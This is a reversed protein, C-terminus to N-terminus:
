YDKEKGCRDCKKKFLGRFTGGCYQCLGDSKWRKRDRCAQIDVLAEMLKNKLGQGKPLKRILSSYDIPLGPCNSLLFKISALCCKTKRGEETSFGLYGSFDFQMMAEDISVESFGGSDLDIYGDGISRNFKIIGGREQMWATNYARFITWSKDLKLALIYGADDGVEEDDKFFDIHVSKMNLEKAVSIVQSILEDIESQVTCQEDYYEEAISQISRIDLEKDFEM